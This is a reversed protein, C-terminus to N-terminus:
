GHLTKWHHCAVSSQNADTTELPPAETRCRETAHPCRPHFRCGQPWNRPSPVMGPIGNLKGTANLRPVAQLLARTYPHLPQHLVRQVPGSEVIKGAYMVYVRDVRRPLLGLNHTILLIAMNLDRRLTALLDLVQAQITVDLATTPEDAVLLQPQCALAMAMMIRQQQGGSLQHPYSRYRKDPDPIGVRKMLAIVER